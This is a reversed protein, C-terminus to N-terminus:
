RVVLNATSVLALTLALADRLRIERHDRAAILIQALLQRLFARSQTDRCQWIEFQPDVHFQAEGVRVTFPGAAHLM